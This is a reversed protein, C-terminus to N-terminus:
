SWHFHTKLKALLFFNQFFHISTLIMENLMCLQQCISWIPCTIVTTEQSQGGIEPAKFFASVKVLLGFGKQCGVDIKSEHKKEVVCFHGFNSFYRNKFSSFVCLINIFSSSIYIYLIHPGTKSQGGTLVIQSLQFPLGGSHIAKTKERLPHQNHRNRCRGPHHNPSSLKLGKKSCTVGEQLQPFLKPASRGGRPSLLNLIHQTM